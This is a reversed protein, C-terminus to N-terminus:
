RSWSVENGRDAHLRAEKRPLPIGPRSAAHRSRRVGRRRLTASAGSRRFACPARSLVRAVSETISRTSRPPLTMSPVPAGARRASTAIFSPRMAAIPRSRAWSSARVSSTESRIIVGPNMSMWECESSAINTFSARSLARWMPTVRTTQPFQPPEDAGTLPRASASSSRSSARSSTLRVHDDNPSYAAATSRARGEIFTQENTPCPVRREHTMPASARAGVALSSARIRVSSAFDISSPAM